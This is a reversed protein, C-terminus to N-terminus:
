FATGAVRARHHALRWRHEDTLPIPSHWRLEARAIESLNASFVPRGDDDFTVLGRDFAAGWLASLLLGNYVDLWCAAGNTSGSTKMGISIMAWRIRKALSPMELLGQGNSRRMLDLWCKMSTPLSPTSCSPVTM